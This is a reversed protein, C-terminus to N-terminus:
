KNPVYVNTSQQKSLASAHASTSDCIYLQCCLISSRAQKVFLNFPCRVPQPNSENVVGALCFPCRHPWCSEFSAKLAELRRM